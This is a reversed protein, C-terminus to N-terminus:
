SKRFEKNKQIVCADHTDKFYKRFNIVCLKKKM